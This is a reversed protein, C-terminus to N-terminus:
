VWSQILYMLFLWKGVNRNLESDAKQIHIAEKAEQAIQSKEQDHLKVRENIFSHHM